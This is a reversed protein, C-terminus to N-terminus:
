HLNTQLVNTIWSRVRECFYKREEQQPESVLQLFDRESVARNMDMEREARSKKPNSLSGGALNHLFLLIRILESTQPYVFESRTQEM